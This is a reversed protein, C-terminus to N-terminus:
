YPKPLSVRHMHSNHWLLVFDYRMQENKEFLPTKNIKARSDIGDFVKTQVGKAVTVIESKESDSTGDNSVFSIEVHDFDEDSPDNWTLTVSTKEASLEANLESM